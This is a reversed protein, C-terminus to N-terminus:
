EIMGEIPDVIVKRAELDILPVFEKVAPILVEKDEHQIVYVENSGAQLIEKIKGLYVGEVTYVELGILDAIYYTDEPLERRQSSDIVLYKGKFGEVQNIDNLGKFTILVTNNQYQIKEFYYKEQRGEIYVWELEEFREPYDTLPLVKLAGKIGHTNVIQGVRLNKM